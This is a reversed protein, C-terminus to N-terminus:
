YCPRVRIREPFVKSFTILGQIGAAMSPGAVAHAPGAGGPNAEQLATLAGDIWSKASAEYELDCDVRLHVRRAGVQSLRCDIKKGAECFHEYHSDGLALVAYHLHGLANAADTELWNWFAQANDPMDGDGYTSTVMILRSKASWDVGTAAAAEM